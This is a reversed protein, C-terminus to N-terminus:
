EQRTVIFQKPPGQLHQAPRKGGYNKHAQKNAETPGIVGQWDLSQLLDLVGGDKDAGFFVLDGGGAAATEEDADLALRTVDDGIM